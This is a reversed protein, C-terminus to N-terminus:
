STQRAAVRATQPSTACGFTYTVCLRLRGSVRSVVLAKTVARLLKARERLDEGIQEARGRLERLLKRVQATEETRRAVAAREERREAM